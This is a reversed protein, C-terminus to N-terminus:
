ELVIVYVKQFKNNKLIEHNKSRLNNLRIKELAVGEKIVGIIERFAFKYISEGLRSSANDEPTAVWKHHGKNHAITFHPYCPIALALRAMIHEFSNNKKHGLEHAHIITIGNSIGCFIAAAIFGIIGIEYTTVFWSGLLLISFGSLLVLYSLIRYFPDSELQKMINESYNATDEGILMDLLPMIFYGFIFPIALTWVNQTIIYTAIGTLPLFIPFFMSILWLLKSNNVQNTSSNTSFTYINKNSNM